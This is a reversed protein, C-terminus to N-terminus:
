PPHEWISTSPGWLISPTEKQKKRGQLPIKNGDKSLYNWLLCTSVRGLHKKGAWSQCLASICYHEATTSKPCVTSTVDSAAMERGSLKSEAPLSLQHSEPQEALKYGGPCWVLNVARWPPHSRSLSHPNPSIHFQSSFVCVSLVAFVFRPLASRLMAYTCRKEGHRARWPPPPHRSIAHSILTPCGQLLFIPDDDNASM